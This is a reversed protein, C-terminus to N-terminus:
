QFDRSRTPLRGLLASHDELRGAVLHLVDGQRQLVGTVGLLRAGLFIKRQREAVKRWVVLNVQGTEDELTMFTVGKATGPRQRNIVIGAVRVAAGNEM